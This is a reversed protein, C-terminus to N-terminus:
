IRLFANCSRWQEFKNKREGPSNRKTALGGFCSFHKLSSLCNLVYIIKVLILILSAGKAVLLRQHVPLVALRQSLLEFFLGLLDFLELFLAFFLVPSLSLLEPLPYLFYLCFSLYLILAPSLLLLETILLVPFLSLLVLYFFYLLCLLLVHSLLLFDHLLPVPSLPLLDPLLLVPLSLFSILYSFYLLCLLSIRCSFCLLCFFFILYLLVPSLPLIDPLLPGLYLLRLFSILYFSYLLCFFYLLCLFSILYSLASCLPPIDHLLLIPSLPLLDPLVIALSL